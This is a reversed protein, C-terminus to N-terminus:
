LATSPIQRVNSSQGHIGRPRAPPLVINVKVPITVSAHLQRPKKAAIHPRKPPLPPPQTYVQRDPLWYAITHRIEYRDLCWDYKYTQALGETLLTEQINAPPGELLQQLRHKLWIAKDRGKECDGYPHPVSLPLFGMEVGGPAMIYIGTAMIVASLFM